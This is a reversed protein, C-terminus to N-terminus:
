PEEQMKESSFIEEPTDIGEDSGYLIKGRDVLHAEKDFTLSDPKFWVLLTVLVVVLAFMGVGVWVGWMRESAPLEAFILVTALFSEVILLALVYFGLPTTIGEVWKTRAPATRNRYDM